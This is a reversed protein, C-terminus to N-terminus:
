DSWGRAEYRWFLFAFVPAGVFSTLLGIPIEHSGMQRAIDDLGLVYIGGLLASAPLLRSHEPGVLLRAFHPVILGVWGIGGSVSVQSAVILSALGLMVWRLLSINIGLARADDESLSLLNLRWRLALLLTGAVLTISGVILVKTFTAGAFSGLLWYIISQLELTPDAFTQVLGLLSSCFGTVIIGSLVLPLPSQRGTAQALLFAVLVASLGVGFASTVMGLTSFGLIIAGAGGLAAGATVGTIEPGVLPNRFVGQMVAGALAVGMGCLTALLVRPLRIIEVIVWPQDEASRSADFPNTTSIVRVVDTLSVPYRGLTLSWLMLVILAILLALLLFDPRAATSRSIEDAALLTKEFTGTVIHDSIVSQFYDAL